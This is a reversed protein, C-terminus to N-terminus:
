ERGVLHTISMAQELIKWPGLRKPLYKVVSEPWRHRENKCGDSFSVLVIPTQPIKESVQIGRQKDLYYDVIAVDFTGKPLSGLAELTECTTVELAHQKAVQKIIKCFTPDDDVVLVHLSKSEM